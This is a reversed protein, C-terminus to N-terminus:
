FRRSTRLNELRLGLIVARGSVSLSVDALNKLCQLAAICTTLFKENGMKKLSELVFPVLSLFQLARFSNKAPCFCSSISNTKEDYLWDIEM